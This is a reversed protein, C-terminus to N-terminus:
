TCGKYKNYKCMHVVRLDLYSNKLVSEHDDLYIEKHFRYLKNSMSASKTSNTAPLIMIAYSHQHKLGRVSREIITTSNHEIMTLDEAKRDSYVYYTSTPSYGNVYKRWPFQVTYIRVMVHDYPYMEDYTNNFQLNLTNNISHSTFHISQVRSYSVAFNRRTIIPSLLMATPWFLLVIAFLAIYKVFRPHPYMVAGPAALLLVVLVLMFLAWLVGFVFLPVDYGLTDVGLKCSSTREHCYKLTPFVLSLIVVVIAYILSGFFCAAAVLHYYKRFGIRRFFGKRKKKKRNFTDEEKVTKRNNIAPVITDLLSSTSSSNGLPILSLPNNPPSDQTGRESSQSGSRTERLREVQTFALSIGSLDGSSHSSFSTHSSGSSLSGSHSSSMSPLQQHSTPSASM